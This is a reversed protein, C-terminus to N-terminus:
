ALKRRLVAYMAVSLVIILGYILQTWFGSLGSAIIGANIGGIVFSGVFTGFITGTGGFVSTGGLFVSSLTSLMYGGGLTPWFYLVELSAILGSFAAAVGVLAFVLIKTRGVNVGMLKASEVNDGVLYVHAGFRHQNLLFWLIIAILIAWLMQMPIKGFLRGVLVQHLFGGQTAILSAGNGGTTVFVVGRWFFQTGITAVLSPIGLAVIIFGNVLGALLGALLCGIFALELSGTAEWVLVFVTMGWAMVSIFSLDIEATIIVMTLPLAIITFFPTTSMFAQYIPFNLFTQPSGVLFVLWLLLAVALIGIQLGFKRAYKALGTRKSQEVQDTQDVQKEVISTM